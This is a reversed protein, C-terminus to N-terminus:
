FNRRKKEYAEVDAQTFLWRRGIKTARIKKTSAWLNIKHPAVKFVKAVDEATLFETM